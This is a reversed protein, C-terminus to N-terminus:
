EESKKRNQERTTSPKNHKAMSKTHQMSTTHNYGCLFCTPYVTIYPCSALAVLLLTGVIHHYPLKVSSPPTTKIVDLNCGAILLHLNSAWTLSTSTSLTTGPRSGCSTSARGYLAHILYCIHKPHEKDEFGETQHVDLHAQLFTNKADIFLHLTLTTLARMSYSAVCGM